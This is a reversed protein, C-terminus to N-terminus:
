FCASYRIQDIITGGAVKILQSIEDSLSVTAEEPERDSDNATTSNTKLGTIFFSIGKFIPQPGSISHHRKSAPSGQRKSKSTLVPSTLDNDTDKGHKHSSAVDDSRNRKRRIPKEHDSVEDASNKQKEENDNDEYADEDNRYRSRRKRPSCDLKPITDEHSNEKNKHSSKDKSDKTKSSPSRGTINKTPSAKREKPPHLIHQEGSQVLSDSKKLKGTDQRQEQEIDSIIAEAKEESDPVVRRKKTRKLISCNEQQQHQTSDHNTTSTVLSLDSDNNETDEKPPRITKAQRKSKSEHVKNSNSVQPAKHTQKNNKKRNFVLPHQCETDGVSEGNREALRTSTETELDSPSSFRLKKSAKTWEGAHNTIANGAVSAVTDTSISEGTNHTAPKNLSPDTKKSDDVHDEGGGLVGNFIQNDTSEQQVVISASSNSQEHTLSRQQSNNTSSLELPAGFIHVQSIAQTAQSDRQEPQVEVAHSPSQPPSHFSSVFSTATSHAFTDNVLPSSACQQYPPTSSCKTVPNHIQSILADNEIGDNNSNATNFMQQQTTQTMSYHLHFLSNTHKADFDSVTAEVAGTNANNSISGSNSQVAQIAVFDEAGRHGSGSADNQHDGFAQETAHDEDYTSTLVVAAFDPM